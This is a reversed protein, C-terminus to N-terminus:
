LYNYMYGCFLVREPERHPIIAFLINKHYGIDYIVSLLDVIILVIRVVASMLKMNPAKKIVLTANVSAAVPSWHSYMMYIVWCVVPVVTTAFFHISVSFDFTM